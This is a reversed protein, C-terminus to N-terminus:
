GQRTGCRRCFRATASLSLGCSVCPQVGSSATPSGPTAVVDRSSAAWLEDAGRGAPARNRLFALNDVAPEGPWSPRADAMPQQPPPSAPRTPPPVPRSPPPPVPRSPPPLVPQSPRQDNMPWAPLEIRDDSHRIRGRRAGDRVDRAPPPAPEPDPAAAIPEEEPEPEYTWAYADDAVYAIPEPEPEAIPEPEPEPQEAAQLAALRALEALVEAGRERRGAEFAELVEDISQGPRFRRQVGPDAPAASDVDDAAAPSAAQAAAPEPAPAAPEPPPEVPRAAMRLRDAMSPIEPWAEPVIYSGPAPPTKAAAPDTDALPPAAAQAAAAEREAASFDFLPKPRTPEPTPPAANEFRRLDTTPWALADVSKKAAAKAARGSRGKPVGLPTPTQDELLPGGVLPACTLCRGDAENWCNSCTYQRCSMCFNFAEHFADLQQSTSVGEAENRAAALAEDLSANDDLVFNKLGKSLVKMKGLRKAAVPAASEFTYRTGCRECFSETLIEAM